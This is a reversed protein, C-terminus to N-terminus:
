SGKGCVWADLTGTGGGPYVIRIYPYAIGSLNIVAPSAGTLVTGAGDINAWTGGSISGPVAPNADLCGQVHVTGTPSGSWILEVAINDLYRCDVVKSTLAGAVNGAVLAHVPGLLSRRMSM